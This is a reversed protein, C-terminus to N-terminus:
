TEFYDKLADNSTYTYWDKKEPSWRAKNKKYIEKNEFINKLYVRSYLNVMEDYKEIFIAKNMVKDIDVHYGATLFEYASAVRKPTNLLGERNPDEGIESLLDAIISQVKNQNM